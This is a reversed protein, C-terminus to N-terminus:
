LPFKIPIDFDVATCVIKDNPYETLGLLDISECGGTEKEAPLVEMQKPYNARAGVRLM